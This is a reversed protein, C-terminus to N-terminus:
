KGTGLIVIFHCVFLLFYCFFSLFNCCLDLIVFGFAFFICCFHLFIVFYNNQFKWHKCAWSKGLKIGWMKTHPEQKQNQMGDAEREERRACM